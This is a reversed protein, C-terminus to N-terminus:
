VGLLKIIAYKLEISHQSLLKRQCLFSVSDEAKSANELIEYDEIITKMLPKLPALISTAEIDNMMDIFDAYKIRRIPKDKIPKYHEYYIKVVDVLRKNIFIFGM